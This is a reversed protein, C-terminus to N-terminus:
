GTNQLRDLIASLVGKEWSSQGSYDVMLMVV